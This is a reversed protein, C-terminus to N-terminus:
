VDSECTINAARPASEIIAREGFYDGSNLVHDAFRSEGLGVDSVKVRGDRIVYFVSGVAGKEVIVDGKKCAVEDMVAGIKRLTEDDLEAFVEVNRLTTLTQLSWDQRHKALVHRFTRQDVRWLVAATAATCTAARPSDFLLALEGFGAPAKCSGVPSRNISFAITGSEVIYYYSGETGSTLDGERIVTANAPVTVREMSGVLAELESVSLSSFVLENSRLSELLFKATGPSKPFSPPIYSALSAPSPLPQQYVNVRARRAQSTLV